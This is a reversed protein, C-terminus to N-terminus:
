EGLFDMTQGDFLSDQMVQGDMVEEEDVMEVRGPLGVSVVVM